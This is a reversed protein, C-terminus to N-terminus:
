DHTMSIPNALCYISRKCTLRSSSLHAVLSASSCGKLSGALLNLDLDIRGSAIIVITKGIHSEEGFMENRPKGTNM